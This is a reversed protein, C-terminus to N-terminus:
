LIDFHYIGYGNGKNLFYVRYIGESSFYETATDTKYTVDVYYCNDAIKIPDNVVTEMNTSSAPTRWTVGDYSGSILRYASSGSVICSYVVGVNGGPNNKGMLYYYVLSRIFKDSRQKFNDSQEDNTVYSYCGPSTEIVPYDGSVSVVPTDLLHNIEYVDYVIPNVLDNEYTKLLVEDNLSTILDKSVEKENLYLTAGAPVNVTISLDGLYFNAKDISWNLDAGKLYIKALDSNETSKLIYSPSASTYDDSKYTQYESNIFVENMKNSVTNIDDFSDEDGAMYLNAWDDASMSKLTFLIYEQPARKIDEIRQEELAIEDQTKQYKSMASWLYILTGLILVGLVIMYIRMILKNKNKKKKKRKRRRKRPYSNLNRNEDM